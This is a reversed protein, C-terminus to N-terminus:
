AEERGEASGAGEVVGGLRAADGWRLGRTGAWARGGRWWGWRGPRNGAVGPREGEGLPVLPNERTKRLFKDGFGEEAFVPLPVPELPPPRGTEM